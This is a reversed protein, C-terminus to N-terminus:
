STHSQQLSCTVLPSSQPKLTECVVQPASEQKKSTTWTHAGLKEGTSGAAVSKQWSPNKKKPSYASSVRGEIPKLKDCCYFHWSPSSSAWGNPASATRASLRLETGLVWALCSVVAQIWAGISGVDEELRWPCRSMYMCICLCMFLYFCITFRKFLLSVRVKQAEHIKMQIQM